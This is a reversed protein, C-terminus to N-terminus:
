SKHNIWVSWFLCTLVSFGVRGGYQAMCLKCQWIKKKKGWSFINMCTRNEKTRSGNITRGWTVATVHKCASAQRCPKLELVKDTCWLFILLTKLLLYKSKCCTFANIANKCFCMFCACMKFCMRPNSRLWFCGKDKPKIFFASICYLQLYVYVQM